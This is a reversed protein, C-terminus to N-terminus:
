SRGSFGLMDEIRMRKKPNIRPQRGEEERRVAKKGGEELTAKRIRRYEGSLGDERTMGEEGPASGKWRREPLAPRVFTWHRTAFMGRSRYAPRPEETPRNDAHGLHLLAMPKSPLVFPGAHAQRTPIGGQGGVEKNNNSDKDNEHADESDNDPVSSAM